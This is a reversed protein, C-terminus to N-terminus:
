LQLIAKSMRRIDCGKYCLEEREKNARPHCLPCLCWIKNPPPPFKTKNEIQDRPCVTSKGADKHERLNVFSGGSQLDNGWFSIWKTLQNEREHVTCVFCRMIDQYPRTFQLSTIAVSSVRYEATRFERDKWLSEQLPFLRWSSLTKCADWISSESDRM